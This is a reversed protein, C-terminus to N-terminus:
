EGNGRWLAFEAERREKLAAIEHGAAEDWILLQRAAAEYLGANLDKLLTSQELRVSGLNYTFDVLADFQGQTLPVKVLREVAEEAEDVDCSLIHEALDPTVGDPFSNPHMQRHGYGITAIGNADLYTRGRFGESKKLLALGAKSFKM